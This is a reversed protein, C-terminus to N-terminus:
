AAEATTRLDDLPGVPRRLAALVREGLPGRPSPLGARRSPPQGPLGARRGPPDDPRGDAATQM